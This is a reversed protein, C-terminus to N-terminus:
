DGSYESTSATFSFNYTGAKAVRLVDPLISLSFTVQNSCSTGTANRDSHDKLPKATNPTLAIKNNDEVSSVNLVVDVKGNDNNFLAFSTNNVYSSDASVTLDFDGQSHTTFMCATAIAGTDLATNNAIAQQMEVSDLTISSTSAIGTVIAYNPIVVSTSATNNAFTLSCLCYISAALIINYIKNYM